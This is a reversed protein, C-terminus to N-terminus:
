LRSVPRSGSHMPGREEGPRDLLFWLLMEAAVAGPEQALSRFASICRCAM